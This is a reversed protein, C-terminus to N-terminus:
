KQVFDIRLRKRLKITHKDERMELIRKFTKLLLKENKSYEVIKKASFLRNDCRIIFNSNIKKYLANIEKSVDEFYVKTDKLDDTISLQRESIKNKM